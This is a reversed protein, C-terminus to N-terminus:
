PRTTSAADAVTNTTASTSVPTASWTRSENNAIVDTTDVVPYVVASKPEHLWVPRLGHDDQQQREPRHGARGGAAHLEDPHDRDGAVGVPCRQALEVGPEHPRHPHAIARHGLLDGVADDPEHDHREGHEAATRHQDREGAGVDVVENEAAADLKPL